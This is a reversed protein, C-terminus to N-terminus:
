SHFCLMFTSFLQLPRSLFSATEPDSARRRHLNSELEDAQLLLVNPAMFHQLSACGCWTIVFPFAERKYILYKLTNRKMLFCITSLSSRQCLDFLGVCLAEFSNSWFHLEVLAFLPVHRGANCLNEQKVSCRCQCVKAATRAEPCSGASGRKVVRPCSLWLLLSFSYPPSTRM